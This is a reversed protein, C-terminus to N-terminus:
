MLEHYLTRKMCLGLVKCLNTESMLYQSGIKEYKVKKKVFNLASSYSCRRIRAVDKVTLHKNKM